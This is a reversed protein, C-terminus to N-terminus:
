KRKGARVEKAEIDLLRVLGKEYSYEFSDPLLDRIVEEAGKKSDAKVDPEVFKVIATVRFTKGM